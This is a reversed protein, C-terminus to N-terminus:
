KNEKCFERWYTNTSLLRNKVRQFEYNEIPLGLKMRDEVTYASIDFIAGDLNLKQSSINVDIKERACINYSGLTTFYEKFPFIADDYGCLLSNYLGWSAYDYLNHMINQQSEFLLKIKYFAYYEADKEQPATSSYKVLHEYNIEDLLELLDVKEDGSIDENNVKDVEIKYMSLRLKIIKKLISNDGSHLFQYAHRKEHYLTLLLEILLIYKKEYDSLYEYVFHNQSCEIISNINVQLQLTNYDFNALIPNDKDKNIIIESLKISGFVELIISKLNEDSLNNMLFLCNVLNM